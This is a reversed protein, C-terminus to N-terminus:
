VTVVGAPRGEADVATLRESGSELMLSLADRLTTDLAARPGNVGAGDPPSLDLDGLRSVALRKLARDAGVFRGVFDDAPNALLEDPSAYQALVGGERLIAIRNGMKIAEDIDQTGFM